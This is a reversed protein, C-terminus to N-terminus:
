PRGYSPTAVPVYGPDPHASTVSIMQGVMLFLMVALLAGVVIGVIGRFM